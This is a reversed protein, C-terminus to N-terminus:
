CIQHYSSHLTKQPHLHARIHRDLMGSPNSIAARYVRVQVCAMIATSKIKIKGMIIVKDQLENQITRKLLIKNWENYKSWIGEVGSVKGMGKWKGICSLKMNKRKLFFCVCVKKLFSVCLKTLPHLKQMHKSRKRHAQIKKQNTSQCTKHMKDWNPSQCDQSRQGMRHSNQQIQFISSRQFWRSDDLVRSRGKKLRRNEISGELKPQTPCQYLCWVEPLTSWPEGGQPITWDHNETNTVM